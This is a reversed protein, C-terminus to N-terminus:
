MTPYKRCKWCYYIEISEECFDIHYWEYLNCLHREKNDMGFM